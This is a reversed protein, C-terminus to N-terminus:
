KGRGLIEENDRREALSVWWLRHERQKDNTEQKMM